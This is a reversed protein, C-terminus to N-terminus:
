PQSSRKLFLVVAADSSASFSQRAGGGVPGAPSRTGAVPDIWEATFEGSAASLDLTLKGGEPAFVIYSVGSEALCYGTSALEHQPTSKALDIMRSLRLAQGMARRPGDDQPRVKGLVKGEYTDMFIPNSGRTFSKWVWTADGGIGWLHDTDSLVVKTGKLDPPDDRFGGESNPSVWDAPSDFLTQNKGRRNQYTMGVPHQQPLSGEVEKVIRIVEYQWDTSDPHTENSVEYLLNDFENLGTVLWRLYEKQYKTVRKRAAQHIEVGKGDGNKDGNVEQVNNAANLPHNPWADPQFQVGYGEFLMVSMYVGAERAKALRARLQNLYEPNHQELDFKANGDLAQGPGTRLWPHPSVHHNGNRWAENRMATTDWRTPEWTWGRTFNHGHAKLWLLYADFDIPQPPDDPGIDVLNNWTHSGTLLIAKGSADAFYRPNVPHVRLPGNTQAHLSALPALLLATLLMVTHSVNAFQKM